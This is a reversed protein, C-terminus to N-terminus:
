FFFFVFFSIPILFYFSFPFVREGQQAPEQGLGAAAEGERGREEEEKAGDGAQRRARALGSRVGGRERQCALGMQWGSERASAGVPLGAGGTLRKTTRGAYPEGRDGGAMVETGEETKEGCLSTQCRGTGGGKVLTSAPVAGATLDRRHRQAATIAPATCSVPV